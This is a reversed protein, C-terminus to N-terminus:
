KRFNFTTMHGHGRENLPCNVIVITFQWRAFWQVVNSTELNLWEPSITPPPALFKFLHRSWLWVGQPPSTKNKQYSKIFGVQSCFKVAGAEAMGSIHM